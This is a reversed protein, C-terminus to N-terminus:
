GSLLPRDATETPQILQEYEESPYYSPSFLLQKRDCVVKICYRFCHASESARM